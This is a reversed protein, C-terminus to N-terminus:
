QAINITVQAEPLVEIYDLNRVRLTFGISSLDSFNDTGEYKEIVSDINISMVAKKGPNIYATSTNYEYVDVGNLVIEGAYAAVQINSENVFEIFLSREGDDNTALAESIIRFGEAKYVEDTSFYDITAGMVAILPSNMMDQYTDVTYDYTESKDTTVSGVGTCIENLDTDKVTFGMEIDAIETIGHLLLEETYFSATEEVSQGSPIDVSIYGGSMMYGNVSNAGFGATGASVSVDKDLTNEIYLELDVSYTGATLSKATVKIGSNDFIITESINAPVISPIEVLVPTTEEITTEEINTDESVSVETENSHENSGGCATFFM